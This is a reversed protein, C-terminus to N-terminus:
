RQFQSVLANGLATLLGLSFGWVLHSALLPGSFSPVSAEIGVLQLWLPAVVSAAGLWVLAGWIVSVGVTTGLRDRHRAPVLSRFSLSMFGFVVSHFEHTIWGVVPDVTGYFVGIGAISGGFFSSVGGYVVGALLAAIATVVLQPTAPRITTLGVAAPQAGAGDEDVRRLLVTIRTGSDAQMTEIDGGYSEVLLRVVNLGYGTRTDDVAAIEGAELLRRQSAPLGPGSDAVSFGVTRGQISVDIRPSTDGGHLIANELLITVVDRLRDTAAVHVGAPVTEVAVSTSPYRDEIDRVSVDLIEGLSVAHTASRGDGAHRVLHKVDEVTQEIDDLRREVITEAAPHEEPDATAFGRLPTLANLIEHRLLRNLVVLRNTQQQLIGRNRRTRAAYIGTLTGGVSGGILFTSLASQDRVTGLTVGAAPDSGLITLVLLVGMAGTGALCWAATTRVLYRDVDAVTLAVGFASLGLGLALPVLGALVFRVPDDYLALTVTFRTLLFSLVAIVLGAPNVRTAM